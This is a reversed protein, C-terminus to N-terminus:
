RIGRVENGGMIGHIVLGEGYGNVDMEGKAM